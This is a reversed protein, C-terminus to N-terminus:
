TEEGGEGELEWVWYEQREEEPKGKRYGHLELDARTMKRVRGRKIRFVSPKDRHGQKGSVLFLVKKDKAAAEDGIGIEAAREVPM